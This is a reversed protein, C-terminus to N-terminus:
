SILKNNKVSEKKNTQKKVKFSIKKKLYNSQKGIINAGEM